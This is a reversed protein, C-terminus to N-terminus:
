AALIDIPDTAIGLALIRKDLFATRYPGFVVIFHHTRIKFCIRRHWYLNAEVEAQRRRRYKCLSHLIVGPVDQM